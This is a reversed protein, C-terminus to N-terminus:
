FAREGTVTAMLKFFHKADSVLKESVTITDFRGLFDTLRIQSLLDLHAQRIEKPNLIVAFLDEHPVMEFLQFDPPLHPPALPLQGSSSTSVTSMSSNDLGM